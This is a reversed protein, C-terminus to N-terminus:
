SDETEFCVPYSAFLNIGIHPMNPFVLTKNRTTVLSIQLFIFTFIIITIKLNM